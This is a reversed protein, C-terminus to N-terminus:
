FVETEESQKVVPQSLGAATVEVRLRYRGPTKARVRVYYYQTEGVALQAAPAFRVEGQQVTFQTGQHGLTGLPNPTMGEPVVATVAVNRLPSTGQNILRIEYRLENGVRVPNRLGLVSIQLSEERSTDVSPFQPPAAPPREATQSRIELRAEAESVLTGDSLYAEVRNRSKGEARCTCHVELRASQGATLNLEWSLADQEIQYGETALTPMLAAADYRDIIKLGSLTEKGTNQVEITFRATEGVRLESPGSKKVTLQPLATQPSVVTVCAEDGAPAIGGGNVEIRLCLRGPRKVGVTLSLQRTAGGPLEGLYREIANQPNAQPHEMGPDLRATILLNAAPTSSRNAVAIQFTVQSNLAAESPGSLRVEITPQQLAPLSPTIGPATPVGPAIPASAWTIATAGSGVVLTKGGCSGEAPRIVQLCIQNTGATPQTQIIDVVARGTADVVAEVCRSGDPVFGAAPGSAIEYRVRWGTRPTHNSLREVITILTHKGGLPIIAPAPFQWQADVWHIVAQQVRAKPDQVSTAFVNAVSDGEVPSTLAAWAQGRLVQIDDDPSPTGRDLRVNLRGTSGIAFSDTVVRPCNFDGLLFDLVGNKEVATFRGVSGQALSWELRRHTRLYGDAAGVGAVLIVESGIAAVPERPELLLAVDGLEAQASPVGYYGECGQPIFPADVSTAPPLEVVPPAVFIQEGSPDIGSTPLGSCGGCLAAGLIAASCLAASLGSMWSRQM